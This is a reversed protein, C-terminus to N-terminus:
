IHVLLRQKKEFLIFIDSKTLSHLVSSIVIENQGFSLPQESIPIAVIPHQYANAHRTEDGQNLEDQDNNIDDTNNLPEQYEIADIENDLGVIM